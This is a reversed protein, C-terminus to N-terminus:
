PACEQSRTLCAGVWEVAQELLKTVARNAATVGGYADDSPASEVIEFRRVGLVKQERLEILQLRLALRVSSPRQLFEQQLVLGQTDLRYDGRIPSPLPVVARWLGSRELGYTLLPGLMRAPADAWQSTAFYSVEYPRTLYAMQRTEFGPEAQAPSLLLVGQARAKGGFAPTRWHEGEIQLRYTHVPGPPPAPLLCGGAALAVLCALLGQGIRDPAM